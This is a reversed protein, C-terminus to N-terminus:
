NKMFIETRSHSIFKRKYFRGPACIIFLMVISLVILLIMSHNSLIAKMQDLSSPPTIFGKPWAISVTLGRHIILPQTTIFSIKNKQPLIVKLFPYKNHSSGTYGMYHTIAIDDPLTITATANQIPFNWDNGTVNWFLQDENKLFDVANTVHYEITYTYDGPELLKKPDGIHIIFRKNERKVFFPLKKNDMMVDYLQYRLASFYSSSNEQAPLWRIFGNKIQTQNAHVTIKETVDLSGDKNVTMDSIFHLIQEPFEQHAIYANTNISLFLCLLFLIKKM